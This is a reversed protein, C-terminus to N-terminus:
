AHHYGYVPFQNLYLIFPCSFSRKFGPYWASYGQFTLMIVYLTLTVTKVGILTLKGNGAEGGIVYLTLTLKRHGAEGGIVYLTLTVKRHSAEGGIVYLTLTVKRHGAEGGIVYLTLTVKRHGAKVTCPLLLKEM